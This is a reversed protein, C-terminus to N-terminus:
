QRLNKRVTEDLVVIPMDRAMEKMDRLTELNRGYEETFEQAFSGDQIETLTTRMQERLEPNAYRIGRSMSGYQSCPSHLELQKLTGMEAIKGITYALEGSMYLEILVAEPPYGAEIAVDVASTLVQGFAPGFAQENFLDLEAEQRFTLELVAGGTKTAGIGKAIALAMQRAQGSHDNHVAMFAYFGRNELYAQRVGAGIMRPAVLVTDITDPPEIMGFTINYGSAFCLVTDPTLAPLISEEFVQPQVEDPVLFLVVRAKEVADKIEFVEFGDAVAANWLGDHINGIVVDVGSERLNQAQARGQNGYGIVAVVGDLYSLSTDQDFYIPTEARFGQEEVEHM